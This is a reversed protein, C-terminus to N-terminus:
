SEGLGQRRIEENAKAIIEGREKHSLSEVWTEFNAWFTESDAILSNPELSLLFRVVRKALLDASEAQVKVRIGHHLDITSHEMTNGPRKQTPNNPSHLSHTSLGFPKLHMVCM